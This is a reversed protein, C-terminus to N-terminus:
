TILSLYSTILTEVDVDGSLDAGPRCLTELGLEERLPEIMRTWVVGCTILRVTHKVWLFM